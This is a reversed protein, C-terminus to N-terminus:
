DPLPALSPNPFEGTQALPWRSVLLEKRSLPTSTLFRNLPFVVLLTEEERMTFAVPTLVEEAKLVRGIWLLADTYRAM